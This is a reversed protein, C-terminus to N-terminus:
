KNNDNNINWKNKDRNIVVYELYICRVKMGSMFNKIVRM